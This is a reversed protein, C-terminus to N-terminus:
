TAASKGKAPPARRKWEATLKMRVAGLEKASLSPPAFPVFAVPTDGDGVYAELWLKERANEEGPPAEEYKYIGVRGKGSTSRFPVSLGHWAWGSGRRPKGDASTMHLREGHVSGGIDAICEMLFQRLCAITTTAQEFDNLTMERDVGAPRDM